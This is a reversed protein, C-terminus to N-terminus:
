RPPHRGRPSQPPREAPAAAGARGATGHVPREGLVRNRSGLWNGAGCPWYVTGAEKRRGPTYLSLEFSETPPTPFLSPWPLPSPRLLHLLKDLRFSRHISKPSRKSQEYKKVNTRAFDNGKYIFLVIHTRQSQASHLLVHSVTILWCLLGERFFLIFIIYSGCVLYKRRKKNTV